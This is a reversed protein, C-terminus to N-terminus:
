DLYISPNVSKGNKSKYSCLYLTNKARTMGVYFLRREEELEESTKAKSFPYIKEVCDIIFVTDWELGKSCHLTSLTVGNNNKSMNKLQFAYQRIYSNWADWSDYKEADNEYSKWQNELEEIDAKRFKAYEKLYKHYKGTNYLIELFEKPTKGRLKDLLFFLDFIATRNKTRMWDEKSASAVQLMAKKNLGYKAYASNTLYRNPHNLIRRLDTKNGENNALKYYSIIDYYMWNEYKNPIRETTHFPINDSLLSAAVPEAQKNTRFLIAVDSLPINLSKIKTKIWYLERVQTESIIKQVTGLGQQFGVFEKSFRNKNKQILKDSESIINKCSRYNTSMKVIKANPYDSVFNLMIEPRAGRFTYISQDDDGVVALNGNKGVILYIINRQILNTDQYEDVQIYQYKEQIWHLIEKDTKLLNYAMTLMDDFDILKYNIKYEEYSNYLNIFLYKDKCCKPEYKSIDFMNNKIVSFEALLNGIFENKDGISTNYKLQEMFFSFSDKIINEANFNLFKKILALCLSHITCFTTNDKGYKKQYREKMEKAAANTFTLMLIKDSPIHVDNVMHNIRRVLTTTKGSGPCAIVILQGEVTNIVKEQAENKKM